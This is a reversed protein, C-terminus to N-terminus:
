HRIRKQGAGNGREASPLAIWTSISVERKGGLNVRVGARRVEGGSAPPSPPTLPGVLYDAASGVEGEGASARRSGERERLASLVEKRM